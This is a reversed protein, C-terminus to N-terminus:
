SLVDPPPLLGPHQYCPSFAPQTVVHFPWVESLAQLVWSPHSARCLLWTWALGPHLGCSCFLVDVIDKVFLFAM